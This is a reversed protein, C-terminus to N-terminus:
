RLPQDLCSLKGRLEGTPSLEGAAPPANDRRGTDTHSVCVRNGEVRLGTPFELPGTNRLWTEPDPANRYVEIVQGESSVVILANRENAVVWVNGNADIDIGDAGELMPHAVLLTSMCLTNSPFVVDCGTPSTLNGASDLTARWLAGRATDAIILEGPATFVLGNAVNSQSGETDAASRGTPSIRVTGQPLTRADRGIGGVGDVANVDSAMAPVRFVETVQGQPSVRWVRGQATGGDSVYANGAADLTLGNAGPLGTAILEAGMTASATRLDLRYLGAAGSDVVYLRGRGDIAMSGPGCQGPLIGVQEVVGTRLATRWLPCDTGTRGGTYLTGAGDGTMAETASTFTAITTFSLEGEPVPSQVTAASVTTALLMAGLLTSLWSLRGARSLRRM